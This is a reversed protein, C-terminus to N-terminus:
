ATWHFPFNHICLVLLYYFFSICYEISIINKINTYHANGQDSQNELLSIIDPLKDWKALILFTEGTIENHSQM